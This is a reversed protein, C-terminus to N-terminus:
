PLGAHRLGLRPSQVLAEHLRDAEEDSLKGDEETWQNFLQELQQIQLALKREPSMEVRGVPEVRVAQGDELTTQVDFVVV